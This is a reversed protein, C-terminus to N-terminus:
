YEDDKSDNPNRECCARLGCKFTCNLWLPLVLMPVIRIQCSDLYCLQRFSRSCLRLCGKQFTMRCHDKVKKPIPFNALSAKFCIATQHLIKEPRVLNGIIVAIPLAHIKRKSAIRRKDFMAIWAKWFFSAKDIFFARCSHCEIFACYRSKPCWKARRMTHEVLERPIPRM